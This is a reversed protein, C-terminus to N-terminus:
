LGLESCVMANIYVYTRFVDEIAIGLGKIFGLCIFNIRCINGVLDDVMDVTYPGLGM